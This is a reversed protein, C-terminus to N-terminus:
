TLTETNYEVDGEDDPDVFPVRETDAVFEGFWGLATETRRADTAELLRARFSARLAAMCAAARDTPEGDRWRDMPRPGLSGALGM